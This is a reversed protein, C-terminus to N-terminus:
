HSLPKQASPTQQLTAHLPAQTLQLSGSRSPSHTETGAPMGSLCPTHRLSAGSLQPWLPRHLPWPLQAFYLGPLGHLTPLQAPVFMSIGALSHSPSPLQMIPVGMSQAGKTQSPVAQLGLQLSLLWHTAGAVQWPPLQPLFPLPWVQAAAVSQMLPKQTSPTQQLVAQVPSQWYQALAAARPVQVGVRALATSGRPLHLSWPALLQPVSPRQSPAPAQWFYLFPVTHRAPRHLSALLVSVPAPVQLL